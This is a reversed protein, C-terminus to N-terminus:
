MRIESRCNLRGGGRRWIAIGKTGLGKVAYIPAQFPLQIGGMHCSEQFRDDLESFHLLAATGFATVIQNRHTQAVLKPIGTTGGTHFYAAVDDDRGIDEFNLKDGNQKQWEAYFNIIGRRKNDERASMEVLKLDPLLKAVDCAKDWIDIEPNPGLAVLVRAGAARILEAIHAPALLPNIPVAYSAIEAGWLTYHTEVLSPLMFAVGARPGAIRRLLNATRTVGDLLERFTVRRPTESAEGTMVMTLAPRHTHIKASSVFVDYISRASCRQEFAKETEFREIDSLTRLPLPALPAM